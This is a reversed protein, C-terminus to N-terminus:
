HGNKVRKEIEDLVDPSVGQAEAYKAGYKRIYPWAAGILGLLGVLGYPNSEKKEPMEVPMSFAGTDIGAEACLADLKCDIRTLQGDYGDMKSLIEDQRKSSLYQTVGFGAANFVYPLAECGAFTLFVVTLFIRAM